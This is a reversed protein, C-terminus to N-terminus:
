AASISRMSSTTRSICLLCTPTYEDGLVWEVQGVGHQTLQAVPHLMGQAGERWAVLLRHLRRGAGHAGVRRPVDGRRDGLQGHALGQDAQEIGLALRAHGLPHEHQRRAALDPRDCWLLPLRQDRARQHGPHTLFCHVSVRGILAQGPAAGGLGPWDPLAVEAPTGAWSAACAAASLSGLRGSPRSTPWLSRTKPLVPGRPPRWEPRALVAAVEAMRDIPDVTRRSNIRPTSPDNSSPPLRRQIACAAPRWCPATM